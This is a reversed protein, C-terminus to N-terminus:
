TFKIKKLMEILEHFILTVTPSKEFLIDIDNGQYSSKYYKRRYDDYIEWAKTILDAEDESFYEALESMNVDLREPADYTLKRHINRVETDVVADHIKQSEKLIYPVLQRRMIRKYTEARKEEKSALEASLKYTADAVDATKVTALWVLLSFLATVVVGSLAIWDSYEM